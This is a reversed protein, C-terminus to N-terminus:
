LGKEMESQSIVEDDNALTVIRDIDEKYREQTLPEGTSSYAIIRDKHDILEKAYKSIKSLINVDDTEAIYHHLSSKIEAVSNM